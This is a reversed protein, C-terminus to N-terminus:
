GPINGRAGGSVYEEGRVLEPKVREIAATYEVSGPKPCKLIAACFCEPPLYHHWHIYHLILDPAYYVVRDDPVLIESFGLVLARGRFRFKNLHLDPVMVCWGLNCTHYGLSVRWRAEVLAVLRDFVLPSVKGRPYSHGLWLYGVCQSSGTQALDPIYPM